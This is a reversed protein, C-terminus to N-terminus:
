KRAEEVKSNVEAALKEELTQENGRAEILESDIRALSQHLGAIEQKAEALRRELEIVHGAEIDRQEEALRARALTRERQRVARDFRERLDDRDARVADFDLGSVGFAQQADGALRRDFTEADLEMVREMLALILGESQIPGAEIISTVYQKAEPSYRLSRESAPLTSRHDRLPGIVDRELDQRAQEAVEPYVTRDGALVRLMMTLEATHEEGGTSM